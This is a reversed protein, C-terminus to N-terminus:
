VMSHLGTCLMSEGGAITFYYTAQYLCYILALSQKKGTKHTNTHM